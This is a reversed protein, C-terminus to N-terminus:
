LADDGNDVLNLSPWVAVSGLFFRWVPVVVLIMPRLRRAGGISLLWNAALVVEEPWDMMQDNPAM